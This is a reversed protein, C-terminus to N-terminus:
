LMCERSILFYTILLGEGLPRLLCAGGEGMSGSLPCKVALAKSVM